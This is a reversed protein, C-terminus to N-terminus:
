KELREFFPLSRAVAWRALLYIVVLPLMIPWILATYGGWLVAFMRESNDWGLTPFESRHFRYQWKYIIIWFMFAITVYMVGYLIEMM